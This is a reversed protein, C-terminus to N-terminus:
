SNSPLHKDLYHSLSRRAALEAATIVGATLAGWLAMKGLNMKQEPDRGPPEEGFAKEWGKSLVTTLLVSVALGGAAVLLTRATDKEIMM